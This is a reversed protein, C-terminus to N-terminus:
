WRSRGAARLAVRVTELFARIAPVAVRFGVLSGTGYRRGRHAVPVEAIRAGSRIALGSLILNPAFLDEPLDALAKELWTRRMLRYPANVDRIGKGFLLQVSLWAARTVLRRAISWRRGVRYGLLFDAESRKAWLAEFGTADMDGDGDTQFVWEGRAERYGRLITPGHGRNPHHAPTLRPHESAARRLLSPTDDKSGDDYVLLEYDVGLRQLQETWDAIVGSIAESENYVPMVVSLEPPPPQNM